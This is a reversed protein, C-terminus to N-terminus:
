RPQGARARRDILAVSGVGKQHHTDIWGTRRNGIVERTASIVPHCGRLSEPIPISPPPDPPRPADEISVISLVLDGRNRGTYRLRFGVPVLDGAFIAHIARRCAARFARDPDPIVLHNDAAQVAKLLDPGTPPSPLRQVDTM